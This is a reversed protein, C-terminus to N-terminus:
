MNRLRNLFVLLSGGFWGILVTPMAMLLLEFPTYFQFWDPSFWYTFPVDIMAIFFLLLPSIALIFLWEKPTLLVYSKNKRRPM